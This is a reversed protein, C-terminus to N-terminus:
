IMRPLLRKGLVVGLHVSLAAFFLVHAAVHAWLYDDEESLVLGLGTSPIAFLSCLLVRESGALLRRQTPSLREDWPPLPTTSRWGVRLIGVALIALGLGIHVPLLDIGEFDSGDGGRGRGHGSGEGRGRGRGRGRGGEGDELLYGVAFQAAVLAVTLWHLSKTVVGYGQEGNRLRFTPPM